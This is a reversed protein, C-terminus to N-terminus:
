HAVVASQSVSILNSFRWQRARAFQLIPTNAAHRNGFRCRFLHTGTDCYLAAVARRCWGMWGMWHTGNWHSCFHLKLRVIRVCQGFETQISKKKRRRRQSAFAWEIMQAACMKQNMESHFHVFFIRTIENLLTSSTTATTVAATWGLLQATLSLNLMKRM